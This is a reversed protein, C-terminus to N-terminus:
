DINRNKGYFIRGSDLNDRYMCAKSYLKNEHVCKLADSCKEFSSCCAFRDAKSVYGNICYETNAKIYQTLNPSDNDIRVRVICTDLDSKTREMVTADAPLVGHLDGEQTERINIEIMKPNSKIKNLFITVVIKNQGRKETPLKPYSPEWICVSHSILTNSDDKQSYNDSLYLSGEPLEYQSILDELMDKISQKWNNESM